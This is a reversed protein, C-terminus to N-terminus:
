VNSRSGGSNFFSIGGCRGRKALAALTHAARYRWIYFVSVAPMILFPTLLLFDIIPKTRSWTVSTWDLNTSKLVWIEGGIRVAFHYKVLLGTEVDYSLSLFSVPPPFNSTTFTYCRRSMGNFNSEEIRAIRLSSGISPASFAVFYENLYGTLWLRKGQFVGDLLSTEGTYNEFVTSGKTRFSHIVVSDPKVSQIEWRYTVNDPPTPWYSIAYEAYIGERIWSPEARCITPLLLALAYFYLFLCLVCVSGTFVIRHSVKSKARTSIAGMIILSSLILSGLILMMLNSSVLWLFCTLVFWIFFVVAVMLKYLIVQGSLDLHMSM